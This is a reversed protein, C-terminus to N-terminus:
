DDLDSLKFTNTINLIERFYATLVDIQAAISELAEKGKITLQYTRGDCDENAKVLGKRELLYLTSYVTGPSVMYDFCKHFFM